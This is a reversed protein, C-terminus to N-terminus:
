LGLPVYRGLQKQAAAVARLAERLDLRALPPLEDLSVDNDPTRGAQIQAAQHEFRIKSVLDFSERLATATEAELAGTEQAAVLRDRTPSITISNALAHFRALNVIPLSGGRKIDIKEPLRGRFRLPPKFDTATRALRAIFDPHKPTSRIREVLPPVVELGGAVHRFDFSVAARVLHSRDPQEFCEEFIRIWEGESMRWEANRALVDAADAGLGCRALGANVDTAVREFYADANPDRSEGAYALANDQDSALTLERRATSGLALWAWAVPAPGHRETAFDILRETATDSQLSLVRGVSAPDLGADLLAVFTRPLQSAVEVLADEGGARALARRIGFPSLTELNMLDAASVVGVVNQLEDLVPLHHVGANMMQISAEVALRYAPTTLVPSSMIKTVPADVPVGGAVVKERLDADTLIGLGEGARVLIASVNFDRMAEAAERISAEPPCFVPPSSVLSGIKLTRVEPLAHVTHGTRTLRERLTLAVYSAGEPRGLVELAVERPLVYCLTDEHARVTFAPALGTLLSPHGFCEGPELVDIVEEQHILEMSGSRIVFLVHVPEGDEVLADEGAGFTRTGAAQGVRELEDDSLHDFPPFQKLFAAVDDM